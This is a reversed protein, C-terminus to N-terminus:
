FRWDVLVELARSPTAAGLVSDEPPNFEGPGSGQLMMLRLGLEVSEFFLRSVGLSMLRSRDELNVLLAGRVSTEPDVALEALLSTYQRGLFSRRGALLAEYDYNDVGTGGSSDRYYQLSFVLRDLVPLSYDVGAVVQYFSEGRGPLRLTGELWFGVELDGKFDLGLVREDHFRDDAATVAMGVTGMLWETRLLSIPENGVFALLGVMRSTPSLSYAARVADVGIKEVSFNFATNVDTLNLPNWIQASGFNIAQRGVRFDWEDLRYDFYARDVRLSPPGFGPLPRGLQRPANVTLLFSLDERLSVVLEPRVRLELAYDYDHRLAPGEAPYATGEPLSLGLAYFRTQAYGRLSAKVGEQALGPAAWLLVLLVWPGAGMGRAAVRPGGSM